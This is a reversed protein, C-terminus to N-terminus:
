KKVCSMTLHFLQFISILTKNCDLNAIQLCSLITTYLSIFHYFQIKLLIMKILPLIGVFLILFVFYRVSKSHKM